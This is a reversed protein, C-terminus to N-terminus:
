TLNHVCMYFSACCLGAGPFSCFCRFSGFCTRRNWDCRWSGLISGCRDMMRSNSHIYSLNTEASRVLVDSMHGIDRPSCAGISILARGSQPTGHINECSEMLGLGAGDVPVNDAELRVNDLQGQGGNVLLEHCAQCKHKNTISRALYGAVHATTQETDATLRGNDACSAAVVLMDVVSDVADDRQRHKRAEKRRTTVTGM